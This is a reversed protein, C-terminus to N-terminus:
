TGSEMVNGLNGFPGFFLCNSIVSSKRRRSYEGWLVMMWMALDYLPTVGTNKLQLEGMLVGTSGRTHVKAKDNLKGGRSVKIQMKDEFEKLMSSLLTSRAPAM